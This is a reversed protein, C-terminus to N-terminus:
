SEIITMMTRLTNTFHPRAVDSWATHRVALWPASTLVDPSTLDYCAFSRPRNDNAECRADLNILRMASVCGPVRALGLMHETDYWRMIEDWWGTDTDTEVVYHFLPTENKSPCHPQLGLQLRSVRAQSKFAKNWIAQLADIQNLTINKQVAFKAYCYLTKQETSYAIRHVTVGALHEACFQRFSAALNAAPEENGDMQFLLFDTPM